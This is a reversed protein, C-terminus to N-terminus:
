ELEKLKVNLWVAEAIKGSETQVRVGYPLGDKKVFEVANIEEKYSLGCQKKLKAFDFVDNEVANGFLEAKGEELTRGFSERMEDVSADDHSDSWVAWAETDLFRLKDQIKASVGIILEEASNIDWNEGNEFVYVNNECDVPQWQLKEPAAVSKADALAYHGKEVFGLNTDDAIRKGHKWLLRKIELRETNGSLLTYCKGLLPAFTSVGYCIEGGEAASGNEGTAAAPEDSNDAVVTVGTEIVLNKEAYVLVEANGYFSSEFNEYSEPNEDLEIPYAAYYPCSARFWDKDYDALRELMRGTIKERNKPDLVFERVKDRVFAALKELKEDRVLGNRTPSKPTLPTGQRVHLYARFYASLGQGARIVQGYWNVASSESDKSFGIKLPADEYFTEAMLLDFKEAFAPNATNVAAGNLRIVLLDDYGRAPSAFDYVESKGDTRIGQLHNTLHKVFDPSAKIILRFGTGFESDSVQKQWEAWFNVDNWVKETPLVLSLKNSAIEVESVERHALISFLGIGMPSQDAVQESEYNSLAVTILPLFQENRGKEGILGTGDDTIIITGSEIDTMFEIFKAGARQANQLIEGLIESVEGSFLRKVVGGIKEKEVLM